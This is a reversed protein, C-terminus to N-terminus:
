GSHGFNINLKKMRKRLTSPNIELLEAAGGPGSVKGRCHHLVTSIHAAMARDLSLPPEDKMDQPVESQAEPLKITALTAAVEEQIMKKLYGPSEEASLYWGPDQPLYQALNVKGSPHVTLAREVLNRLERINGPWSYEYLHKMSNSEIEIKKSIHLKKSFEEIFHHILLPIDETRDRLPPLRLPFVNLRYYLDERFTGAQMMSELPRNTAAIIRVDIRISRIGGVREVVKDQLVRLLRVQSSPSLEGIEDLFLTGGSAQEFKGPKDTLAGTFAGKQYGFLESDILSEPIAGCNMKLYPGDRQASVRQVADAILEKGTGTEGMILVPADSGTLQEVMQMTHRLGGDKGIISTEKLLSVEGALQRRHEDLRMQLEHTKRHQLLNMMALGVPARMLELLAEHEPTFCNKEKGVLCLHGVIHDGATLIAVLFSHDGPPIFGALAHNLCKGMSAEKWSCGHSIDKAQEHQQLREMSQDSLPVLTDLAYFENKTTLFDLQTSHLQPLFRHLSIGVIPLHQSLFAYTARMAQAFDLSSNISLILNRLFTYDSM